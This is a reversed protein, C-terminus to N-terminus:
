ISEHPKISYKFERVNNLYRFSGTGVSSPATALYKLAFSIWTKTFLVGFKRKCSFFLLYNSNKLQLMFCIDINFILQMCWGKSTMCFHQLASYDLELVPRYQGLQDLGSSSFILLQLSAENIISKKTDLGSANRIEDKLIRLAQLPSGHSSCFNMLQVLVDGLVREFSNQTPPRRGYSGPLSGGGFILTGLQGCWSENHGAVCFCYLLVSFSRCKHNIWQRVHLHM